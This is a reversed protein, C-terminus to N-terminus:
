VIVSRARLLPRGLPIDGDFRVLSEAASETLQNFLLRWATDDSLTATVSARSETPGGIDWRDGAFRLTWRGGSLGTVDLTISQGDRARVERYAHPLGHMAIELVAHLWRPDSYPGEGVADRIQAGHHWVETLERGVDLWGASATEGAWSVPFLAPADLPLGEFFESMELSARAYLDILTRPSLRDTAQIWEANLTNIFRVFDRESAIAHPPPPPTRHDRHFSLRRLATDLMHAVVQRVRWSGATTPREWDDASLRHLLAV